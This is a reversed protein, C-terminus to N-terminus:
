NGFIRDMKKILDNQYMILSKTGNKTVKCGVYEKMEGEEKIAFHKQLENKFDSIAEKKGLCLTDDICVCM